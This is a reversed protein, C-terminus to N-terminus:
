AIRRHEHHHHHEMMIRSPKDRHRALAETLMAMAKSLRYAQSVYVDRLGPLETAKRAMDFSKLAELYTVGMLGGLMGAVADDSPPPAVKVVLPPKPKPEALDQLTESSVESGHRRRAEIMGVYAEPMREQMLRDCQLELDDVAETV